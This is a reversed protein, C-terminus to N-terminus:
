RQSFQKVTGNRLIRRLGWSGTCVYCDLFFKGAILGPNSRRDILFCALLKRRSYHRFDWIWSVTSIYLLKAHEGDKTSDPPENGHEFSDAVPWFGWGSSDLACVSHYIPFHFPINSCKLSPVRSVSWEGGDLASITFSYSSYRREGWAGGHLAAPSSLSPVTHFHTTQKV